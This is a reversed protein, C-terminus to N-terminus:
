TSDTMLTYQIFTYTICLVTNTPSYHAHWFDPHRPKCFSGSLHRDSSEGHMRGALGSVPLINRTTAYMTYSRSIHLSSMLLSLVIPGRRCRSWYKQICFLSGSSMAVILTSYRINGDWSRYESFGLKDRTDISRFSYCGRLRNVNSDLSATASLM